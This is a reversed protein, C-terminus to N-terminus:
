RSKAWKIISRTGFFVFTVAMIVAFILIAIIFGKSPFGTPSQNNIYSKTFLKVANNISAYIFFGGFAELCIGMVLKWM